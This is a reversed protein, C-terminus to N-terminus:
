HGYAGDSISVARPGDGPALFALLRRGEAEVAPRRGAPVDGLVEIELTAAGRERVVKWTAQAFGDVLVTPRDAMRPPYADGLIRSRDQHGLLVNDYDPLFRPPAPTAPDPL